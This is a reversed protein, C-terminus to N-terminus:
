RFIDVNNPWSCRIEPPCCDRIRVESQGFDRFYNRATGVPTTTGEVASESASLPIREKLFDVIEKQPFNTDGCSLYHDCNLDGSFM